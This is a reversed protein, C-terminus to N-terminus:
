AHICRRSFTLLGLYNRDWIEFMIKREISSAATWTGPCIDLHHVINDRIKRMTVFCKRLMPCYSTWSCFLTSESAQILHRTGWCPLNAVSLMSADKASLWCGLITETGFRLCSGGKSAAQQQEHGQACKDLHHVISDRIKRMTVFCKRLMPCYSTWSCFLTSESAEILHRTGWCPLNAVSLMSADEASLWCGLITETEFRLCSKGKLVAQQQENGQACKDLSLM